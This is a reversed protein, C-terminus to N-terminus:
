LLEKSIQSVPVFCRWSPLLVRSGDFVPPLSLLLARRAALSAARRAALRESLVGVVPPSLVPRPPRVGLFSWLGVGSFGRSLGVGVRCWSGSRFRCGGSAPVAPVPVPASLVCRGSLLCARFCSCGSCVSGRSSFSSVM